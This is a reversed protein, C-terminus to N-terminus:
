LGLERRVEAASHVRGADLDEYGEDLLRKGEDSLEEEEEPLELLHRLFSDQGALLRELFRGAAAVDEDPLQDLLRAVQKRDYSRVDPVAM